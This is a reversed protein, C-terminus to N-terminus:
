TSDTGVEDLELLTVFGVLELHPGTGGASPAFTLECVFVLDSAVSVDVKALLYGTVISYTINLKNISACMYMGLPVITALGLSFSGSTSTM